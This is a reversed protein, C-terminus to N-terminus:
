PPLVAGTGLVGGGVGRWSSNVSWNSDACWVLAGLDAHQSPPRCRHVPHLAAAAHAPLLGAFCRHHAGWAHALLLSLGAANTAYIVAALRQHLAGPLMAPPRHHTLGSVDVAGQVQLM